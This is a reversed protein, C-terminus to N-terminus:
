LCAPSGNANCSLAFSAGTTQSRQGTVSVITTQIQLIHTKCDTPAFKGYAASQLTPNNTGPLGATVASCHDPTFSSDYTVPVCSLQCSTCFNTMNYTDYVAISAAPCLKLGDGGHGAYQVNCSGTTVSFYATALTNGQYSATLILDGPGAQSTTNGQINVTTTGSITM